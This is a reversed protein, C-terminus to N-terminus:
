LKKFYGYSKIQYGRDQYFKHAENREERNGCNLLVSTAGIEIAWNEVAKLLLKGIGKRTYSHNIVFALVRVYKGNQEYFYNQTVGAMGVVEENLCVVFTKYESHNFIHGFRLGMEEPTTPYGLDNMLGALALIDEATADKIILQQEAMLKM